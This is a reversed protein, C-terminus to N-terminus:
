HPVPAEGVKVKPKPLRLRRFQLQRMTAYWGIGRLLDDNPYHEATLRKVRRSTFIGEAVLTVMMLPWAVYAVGVQFIPDPIFLLMIIVISFPLFFESASRRSDVLDRAYRRAPGLDAPRYFRAEDQPVGKLGGSSVKSVGRQRDLRARYAQYAEKRTEPAKIPKRPNPESERRKPTPVGKKPTYGKPQTAESAEPSASETSQSDTDASASRRRFVGVPYGTM